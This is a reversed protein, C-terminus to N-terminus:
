INIELKKKYKEFLDPLLIVKENMFLETTFECIEQLIYLDVNDQSVPDNFTYRHLCIHIYQVTQFMADEGTDSRCFTYLSNYCTPCCFINVTVDIDTDFNLEFKLYKFFIDVNEKSIFIFRSTRSSKECVFCEKERKLNILVNYHAPCLVDPFVQEKKDALKRQFPFILNREYYCYILILPTIEMKM